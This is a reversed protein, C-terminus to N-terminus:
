SCIPCATSKWFPYDSRHRKTTWSFRRSTKTAGPALMEECLKKKDDWSMLGSTKAKIIGLGEAYDIKWKMRIHESLPANHPTKGKLPKAKMEKNKGLVLMYFDKEKEEALISCDKPRCQLSKLPTEGNKFPSHSLM